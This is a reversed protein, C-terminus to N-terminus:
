IGAADVTYNWKGLLDHHRIYQDKIEKFAASCTRGLPYVKDLIYAKVRLGTQTTTREIAERVTEISDPIIGSLAREVQSFLRHEIPHWKSTYPPYHAIRLRLGLRQSLKLLDERFLPSRVSNAGGADFTLLLEDAQPYHFRGYWHWCRALADTILEGTEHSTGLTIFGFNEYYDYIGHPIAVGTALHRYDHDYVPQAGTSYCTGPRHLLGLQEKKKTDVGFVPLGRQHYSARLAALHEFQENRQVPDVYGTILEKCLKRKKFGAAELLKAATNRCLEFGQQALTVAFTMPKLDTWQVQEDTPSGASHAELVKQAAEELGAQRDSEKPRGAGPRRIRGEGSPRQPDDSDVMRKLERLGQYITGRSLGLVQAIYSIGGFGLKLAEVAAYRRQHDEPLSRFFVRMAQEEGPDYGTVRKKKLKVGEARKEAKYM